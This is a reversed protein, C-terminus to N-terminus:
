QDSAVSQQKPKKVDSALSAKPNSRDNQERMQLCDTEAEEAQVYSVMSSVLFFSLLIYKM